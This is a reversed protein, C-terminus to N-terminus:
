AALSHKCEWKGSWLSIDKERRNTLGKMVILEGNIKAKNWRRMQEPVAAYNGNNLLRLLTSKTFNVNGINFCFSCLADFQNQNLLVNVVRSVIQEATYMDQLLLDDVQKDTLGIRYEVPVKNIIITGTGQEVATLLHGIGITPYGSSDPYVHNDRGEVEEMYKICNLSIMQPFM